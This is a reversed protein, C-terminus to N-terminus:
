RRGVLSRSRREGPPQVAATIVHPERDGERHREVVVLGFAVQPHDFQLFSRRTSASAARASADAGTRGCSCRWLVCARRWCEGRRTRRRGRAGGPWRRFLQASCEGTDPGYQNLQGGESVHSWANCTLSCDRTRIDALHRTVGQKTAAPSVLEDSKRVQAAIM